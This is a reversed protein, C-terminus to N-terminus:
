LQSMKLFLYRRQNKALVKNRDQFNVLSEHHNKSSIKDTSTNYQIKNHTGRNIQVQIKFIQTQFILNSSSSRKDIEFKIKVTRTAQLIRTWFLCSNLNSISLCDLKDLKIKWFDLEFWYPSHHTSNIKQCLTNHFRREFSFSDCAIPHIKTQPLM